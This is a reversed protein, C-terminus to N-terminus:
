KAFSFDWAGHWERTSLARLLARHEPQQDGTNAGRATVTIEVSSLIYHPLRRPSPQQRVGPFCLLRLLGNFLTVPFM